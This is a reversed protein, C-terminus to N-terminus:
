NNTKVATFADPEGLNIRVRDWAPMEQRVAGALFGLYLPSAPVLQHAQAYALQAEALRGAKQLCHGRTSLFVALEEARSLSRLYDGSALEADSMPLPWTHYYEDPFCNLGQSTAELNLREKGDASEWRTFLHAKTSVLKLPYGLRRGVAVYLVPMSVCTGRRLPTILGHLFLDRSDAFNPSQIRGPNYHVGFDQQLVTVLMIARFYAESHDYDAPNRRFRYLHRDTESRVRDTWEDLVKLLNSRSMAESGPLGEACLLNAEAIDLDDFETAARGLLSRFGHDPKLEDNAGRGVMRQFLSRDIAAIVVFACALGVAFAALCLIVARRVNSGGPKM